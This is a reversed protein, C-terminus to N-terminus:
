VEGDKKMRKYLADVAMGAAFTVFGREVKREIGGFLFPVNINNHNGDPYTDVARYVLWVIESVFRKKDEGKYDKFSAALKMVPAVIEGIRSADKLQIGDGFVDKVVDLMEVINTINENVKTVDESSMSEKAEEILDKIQKVYDAM